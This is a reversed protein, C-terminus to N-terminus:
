MHDVIQSFLSYVNQLGIVLRYTRLHFSCTEIQKVHTQFDGQYKRYLLQEQIQFLIEDLCNSTLESLPCGIARGEGLDSAFQPIGFRRILRYVRFILTFHDEFGLTQDLTRRLVCKCCALLRLTALERTGNTVDVELEYMLSVIEKVDVDNLNRGSYIRGAETHLASHAATEPCVLASEM